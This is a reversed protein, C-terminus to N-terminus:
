DKRAITHVISTRTRYAGPNNTPPHTAFPYSRRVMRFAQRYCMLASDLDGAQEHQVAQQYVNLASTLAKTHKQDLIEGDPTIAPHHSDLSISPGQKEQASPTPIVHPIETPRITASSSSPTSLSPRRVQKRKELEARWEARFKALEASEEELSLETAKAKGNTMYPYLRLPSASIRHLHTVRVETPIAIV